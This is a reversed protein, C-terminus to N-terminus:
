SNRQWQVRIPADHDNHMISLKGQYAHHLAEGTSRTLHLGTYSIRIEGESEEISMIRELPHQNKEDREKHHILSLVEEKHEFFFNGSLQLVGAPVKDHIRACAPCRQAQPIDETASTIQWRGKKYVLGCDPCQTPESLKKTNQYPDQRHPEYMQHQQTQQSRSNSHAQTSM